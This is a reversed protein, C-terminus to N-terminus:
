NTFLFTGLFVHKMAIRETGGSLFFLVDPNSKAFLFKESGILKEIRRGASEILTESSDGVILHKIILKTM